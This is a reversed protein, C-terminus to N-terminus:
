QDTNANKIAEMFDKILPNSTDSWHKVALYAVEALFPSVYGQNRSRDYMEALEKLFALTNEDMPKLNM